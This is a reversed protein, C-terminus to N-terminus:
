PWATFKKRLINEILMAFFVSITSTITLEYKLMRVVRIQKGKCEM